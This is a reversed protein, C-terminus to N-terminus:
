LDGFNKSLYESIGEPTAKIGKKNNEWQAPCVLGTDEVFKLADIIRILEDVNRGIPLDNIIQSRVIRNKDLIFTGRLAVDMEPHSVNYLKIIKHKIDSIMPYKLPGVGGENIPTNRWAYHTFESDISVGVIKTDRKAFELYRKNLAILESPCVFTFDLPWFFIIAYKNNVFNSLKFNQVIEGSKLLAHATFDPALSAVLSM